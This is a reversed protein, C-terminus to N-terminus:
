NKIQEQLVDIHVDLDFENNRKLRLIEKDFREEVDHLLHSLRLKTDPNIENEKLEIYSQTIKKIGDIYVIIFKRAIRLDKPDQEINELIEYAKNLAKQLQDKLEQDQMISMDEQISALKSRALSLTQIVFEASIDGINELKDDKPDFGYYLFYGITSIVALFIGTSLPEGGAMWATYLTSVGLMIGAFLKFPTKPAKTLTSAQYDQEKQLGISNLKATAFFLGFAILDLIFASIDKALLALITALFLPALFLYLFYGGQQTFLSKKKPDFPNYRKAKGM